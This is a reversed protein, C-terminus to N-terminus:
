FLRLVEPRWAFRGCEDSFIPHRLPHRSQMVQRRAAGCYAYWLAYMERTSFPGSWLRPVRDSFTAPRTGVRYIATRALHMQSRLPPDLHRRFAEQLASDFDQDSLRNASCCVGLILVERVARTADNTMARSGASLASVDAHVARVRDYCMAVNQASLPPLLLELAGTMDRINQQGFNTNRPVRAAAHVIHWARAAAVEVGELQQTSSIRLFDSVRDALVDAIGLQLAERAHMVLTVLGPLAFDDVWIASAVVWHPM